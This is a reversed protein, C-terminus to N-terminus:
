GTLAPGHVISRAYPLAKNLVVPVVLLLLLTGIGWSGGLIFALLLATTDLIIRSVGLTTKMVKSMAKTLQDYPSAGLESAFLALVGVCFIALGAAWLLILVSVNPQAEMLPQLAIRILDVFLGIGFASVLTGIAPKIGFVWAVLVMVISLVVLIIGMTIGSQNAAGSFFADLPSVGWGAEVMMGIGVGVFSVGIALSLWAQWMLWPSKGPRAPAQASDQDSPNEAM